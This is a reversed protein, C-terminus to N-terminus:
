RCLHRVLGDDFCCHGTCSAGALGRVDRPDGIETAQVLVVEVERWMQRPAAFVHCSLKAEVSPQNRALGGVLADVTRIDCSVTM